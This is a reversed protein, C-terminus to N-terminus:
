YESEMVNNRRAELAEHIEKGEKESLNYLLLPILAAIMCLLPVLNVARNIGTAIVSNIEQGGVYGSLGIVFLGLSAGIAGGTKTAFGTFGSVTGDVRHGTKYEAVDVADRTLAGGSMGGVYGIGYVIHGFILFPLNTPDAFFILILGIIHMFIGSIVAKKIGMKRAFAPAFPFVIIGVITPLSMFIGILDPRHVVHLYYFVAIGIRGMMGVMFLTNYLVCCVINRSGFMVQFSKFLPVNSKKTFTIVEKTGAFVIWFLLMATVVYISSTVQYGRSINGKGLYAILPMTIMNLLIMAINMGTMTAAGLRPVDSRNRTIAMAMGNYPVNVATYVMTLITYTIYAYILNRNAEMNPNRFVLLTGAVLLPSGFLIYPRFRGWRTRTRESILGMLPDNAADWIRTVLLMTAVAAASLGVADTYFLALYTSVMTWSLNSAFNGM